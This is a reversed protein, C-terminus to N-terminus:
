EILVPTSAIVEGKEDYVRLPYVAPLDPLTAMVKGKTEFSGLENVELALAPEVAKSGLATEVGPFYMIAVRVKEGPKFNAGCCTVEKGAEVPNPIVSVAPSMREPEAPPAPPTPAAAPVCSVLVFLMGILVISVVKLKTM